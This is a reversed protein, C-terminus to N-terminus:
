LPNATLVLRYLMGTISASSSRAPQAEVGFPGLMIAIGPVPFLKSWNLNSSPLQLCNAKSCIPPLVAL